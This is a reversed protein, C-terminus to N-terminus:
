YKRYSCKIVFFPDLPRSRLSGYIYLNSLFTTLVKPKRLNLDKDLKWGCSILRVMERVWWLFIRAWLMRVHPDIKQLIPQSAIAQGPSISIEEVNRDFVYNTLLAGGASMLSASLPRLWPKSTRVIAAKLLGSLLPSKRAALRGHLQAPLQCADESLIGFALRLCAQLIRLSEYDVDSSVDDNADELLDFDKIVAETGLASVRAILFRFDSLAQSLIRWDKAGRVNSLGSLSNAYIPQADGRPKLSYNNSQSINASRVIARKGKAPLPIIKSLSKGYNATSFNLSKPAM